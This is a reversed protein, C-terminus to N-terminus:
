SDLFDKILRAVEAAKEQHVFHGAGDIVELRSGAIADRLIQGDGVPTQDDGAGYILLTPLKLTRAKAQMDQGIIRKFTPEMEGLVLLDSGLKGYVKARLKQRSRKPLVFLGLKAIKAMALLGAKRGKNKNRIGTSAILVLKKSKLKGSALGNIAVAGGFSHVIFGYVDKAGIKDLWSAVFDSFDDMQWAVPPRQTKGFGPMDLILFTYDGDLGAVVSSFTQSSDAWGHLLVVTKEGSGVKQYNTMQGDVVVNM